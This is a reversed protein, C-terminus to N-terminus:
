RRELAWVEHVALRHSFAEGQFEVRLRDLPTGEPPLRYVRMDQCTLDEVQGGSALPRWRGSPDRGFIRTRVVSGDIPRVVVHISDLHRPRDFAIELRPPAGDPKVRWGRGWEPSAEDDVAAEPQTPDLTEGFAGVVSRPVSRRDDVFSPVPRCEAGPAAAAVMKGLSPAAARLGAAPDHDFGDGEVDSGTLEDLLWRSAVRSLGPTSAWTESVRALARPDSWGHVFAIEALSREAPRPTGRFPFPRRSRFRGFTARNQFYLFNRLVDKPTEYELVPWVDTSVLDRTAFLLEATADLFRDVDRDTVVLDSLLELPSGSQLERLYPRLSERDLDQRVSDLNVELPENSAVVFGQHRHTWVSVYPFVSRVTNVVLFLNRASLHHIPFWQLLVGHRKLRRSVLRYFDDSYIAGVGAFWITTVEVSVVDYLDERELLVSRGDDPIIEVSPWSVVDGNVRGFHTSAAEVIPGSIEACVVEHFGHAVLAALTVGTGLGVVLARERGATFLTPINALRHQIPVEESDDGQFKGNTLLTKVGRSEVVTTLGGTPDEREFVITGEGSASRGLYIAAAVNLANLDWTVPVWGGVLAGALGVVAGLWRRRGRALGVLVATGALILLVGLLRLSGLSGRAPLIWYSGLIAGGVAGVTNVAYALGISRGFHSAESGVCRMILPFGIGILATPLLMLILAVAFRVMEMFLFSPSSRAFLLFVAPMEDWVGLTAIVAAGALMQSAGIATSARGEPEAFGEALRAGLALGLLLTGLMLGFAYVSNGILIALLHTWIIELGFSLLGSAAAAFLLVALRSPPMRGTSEPPSSAVDTAVPRSLRWAIVCVGLNLVAGLVISGVLGLRPVLVYATVFAGAAAGFVNLAYLRAVRRGMDPRGAALAKTYAPTTIGMFFSPVVFAAVGLVFRVLNRPGLPGEIPPAVELYFAQLAPFIAPFAVCYAGIAAEALAYLRLPHTTRDTWRGGLASGASMGIMFAVLLASIAYATSGVILQVYRSLVVQYAVASFGSVVFLAALLPRVPAPATPSPAPSM